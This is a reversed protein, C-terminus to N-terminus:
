YLLQVAFARLYLIFLADGANIFERTSTVLVVCRVFMLCKVTPIHIRIHIHLYLIFIYSQILIGISVLTCHLLVKIILFFRLANKPGDTTPYRVAASHPRPSSSIYM